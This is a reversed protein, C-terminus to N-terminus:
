ASRASPYGGLSALVAAAKDALPTAHRDRYIRLATRLSAEAQGPSPSGTWRPEPPSFRTRFVLSTPPVLASAEDVLARAAPFQGGRALIKARVARWRAQPDIDDDAAAAQGEETM